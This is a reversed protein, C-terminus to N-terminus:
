ANGQVPALTALAHTNGATINKGILDMAQAATLRAAGHTRAGPM